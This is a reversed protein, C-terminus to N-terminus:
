VDAQFRRAAATTGLSTSTVAWLLSYRLIRLENAGLVICLVRNNAKRVLVKVVYRVLVACGCGRRQPCNSSIPTTRVAADLVAADTMPAFCGTRGKHGEDSHKSTQVVAVTTTQVRHIGFTGENYM